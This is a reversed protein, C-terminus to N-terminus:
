ENQEWKTWNGHPFEIIICLIKKLHEAMACTIKRMLKNTKKNEVETYRFFFVWSMTLRAFHYMLRYVSYVQDCLFVLFTNTWTNTSKFSNETTIWKPMLNWKRVWGAGEELERKKRIKPSQTTTFRVNTWLLYGKLYHSTWIAHVNLISNFQSRFCIFFEFFLLRRFSLNWLM